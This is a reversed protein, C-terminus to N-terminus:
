ESATATRRPIEREVEDALIKLHQAIKAFLDRKTKDTTLESILQCEASDRQLKELHVLIDRL